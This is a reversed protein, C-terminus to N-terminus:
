TLHKIIDDFKLFFPHVHSIVRLTNQENMYFEKQWTIDSEFLTVKCAFSISKYIQLEHIIHCQIQLIISELKEYADHDRPYSVKVDIFCKNGDTKVEYDVVMNKHSVLIFRIDDLARM